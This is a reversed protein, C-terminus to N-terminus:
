LSLLLYLHGASYAIKPVHSSYWRVLRGLRVPAEPNSVDVVDLGYNGTDRINLYARNDHVVLGEDPRSAAYRGVSSVQRPDQFDFIVL